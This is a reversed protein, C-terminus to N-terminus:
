PMPGGEARRHRTLLWAAAAALAAVGLAGAWWGAPQGGAAPASTSPAPTAELGTADLGPPSAPASGSVFVWGEASGPTPRHTAAGETAYSWEGAELVWYSWYSDAPPDDVCSEEEPGPIGDIRCLMGPTAAVPDITFGATTLAEFGTGPAGLACRVDVEGGVARGDVVVTVGETGACAGTEQAPAAGPVALVAAVVLAAARRRGRPVPALDHTM